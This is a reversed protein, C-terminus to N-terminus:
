VSSSKELFHLLSEREDNVMLLFHIGAGKDDIWAVEAYVDISAKQDLLFIESKLVNGVSLSPDLSIRMGDLSMDLTFTSKERRHWEEHNCFVNDGEMLRYKVPIKVPIRAHIRKEKIMKVTLM